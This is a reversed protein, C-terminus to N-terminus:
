QTTEQAEKRLWGLVRGNQLRHHGNDSQLPIRERSPSFPGPNQQVIEIETDSVASIIAVHGYRNLLWPGFVLLDNPKPRTQSGNVFQLLDRQLNRAGDPLSPNFFDKANGHSDAMKHHLREYYYRKVFEVCQYKIGLNYGDATLNRGSTHDVGGNYFVAVGNLSDIRQGVRYRPNWNLLTAAKWSVVVSALAGVAFFALRRYHMMESGKDRACRCLPQRFGLPWTWLGMRSLAYIRSDQRNGLGSIGM